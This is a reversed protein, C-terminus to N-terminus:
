VRPWLRATSSAQDTDHDIDRGPIALEIMFRRDHITEEARIAIFSQAQMEDLFFKLKSSCQCNGHNLFQQRRHGADNRFGQRVFEFESLWALAHRKQDCM